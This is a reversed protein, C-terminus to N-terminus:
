RLRRVAVASLPAGPSFPLLLGEGNKTEVIVTRFAAAGETTTATRLEYVGDAVAFHYTGEGERWTQFLPDDGTRAVRRLDRKAEGGSFYRDAEWVVGSGDTYAYAAGCNIALFSGGTRDDYVIEFADELGGGRARLRNVGNQLRVDWRATRNEIRRTGATAGNVLLEVEEVNAYVWVPQMADEPRSGARRPWERAIYLLPESRLAARYYFAIDKPTRDHYYLGKQNITPKTDGRFESAFDFQNWIASGLLYPRGEIQPWSVVHFRQAHESSFDFPRPDRTHVREDSDAGYESVILPRGPRRRHLEDLFPGLEELTEYYWGFYLNLGLVQPLDGIGHDTYVEDRSLAMVTARTPDEARTRAELRRTLEVVRPYYGEPVPNPKILLVENMYGWFVVSPHNYHQRIMEVLMRESNEAFAESMGIMNVVPIEEWILLGARDAAELLAPDQPYHALRLFNFGNGKIIAVDRRHYSDPLANGLGAHDQHRNTGNLRLPKGNLRFGDDAGFSFWRLGLPNEVADLLTAGEYLESRVRYLYPQDPSWLNPQAIAGTRQEFPEVAGPAVILGVTASAVQRNQADLVRSILRLRAKSRRQNHVSGSIRVVASSESLEPTDIFVGPSAHDTVTFHATDTAVLWVDRYIGGFFTFDANLPPIDASHSNDVRVAILNEEGPVTLETVDFVFATYGGIHRGAHRGNVYVDAVQNAGEFYLHIRKGTLEKAITLRKRYWGEGRRYGPVDDFADAANWTHPLNVRSWARDDFATSQAGEQPGDSYAWSDNISYRIRPQVSWEAAFAGGSALLVLLLILRSPRM